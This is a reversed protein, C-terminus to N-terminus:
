LDSFKMSRGQVVCSSDEYVEELQGRVMAMSDGAVAILSDDGYSSVFSRVVPTYKLRPRFIDAVYVRFLFPSLPSGQPIDKSLHFEKSVLRNFRFRAKRNSAWHMVTLILSRPCGRAMLFDVMLDIDICYLGREVDMSLIATCYNKDGELFEYVVTMANHVGRNPRSVFQTDKLEVHKTIEVLVMREAVKAIVPLLYIM